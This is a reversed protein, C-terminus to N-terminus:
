KKNAQTCKGGVLSRAQERVNLSGREVGMTWHDGDCLTGAYTYTTGRGSVPM